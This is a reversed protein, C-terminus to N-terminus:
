SLYNGGSDGRCADTNVAEACLHYQPFIQYKYEANQYKWQCLEQTIGVVTTKRLEPSPEGKGHYTDGWGSVTLDAGVFRNSPDGALCVIGVTPSITASQALKLLAFDNLFRLDNSYGPHQFCRISM